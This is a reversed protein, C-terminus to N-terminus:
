CSGCAAKSYRGLRCGPLRWTMAYGKACFAAGLAGLHQGCSGRRLEARSHAAQSCDARFTRAEGPTSCRSGEKPM